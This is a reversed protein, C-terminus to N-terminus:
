SFRTFGTYGGFGNKANVYGCHLAVHRFVASDPDRLINKVSREMGLEYLRQQEAASPPEPMEPPKSSKSPNNFENSLLALLAFIGIGALYGIGKFNSAM